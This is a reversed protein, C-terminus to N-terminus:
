CAATMGILAPTQPAVMGIEALLPEPATPILPDSKPVGAAVTSMSTVKINGGEAPM